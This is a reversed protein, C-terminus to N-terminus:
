GIENFAQIMRFVDSDLHPPVPEKNLLWTMLDNDIEELLTELRDLQDSSLEAAKAVAFRGVLFDMEKMGRHNSRFILRKIRDDM